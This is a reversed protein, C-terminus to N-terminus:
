QAHSVMQFDMGVNVGRVILRMRPHASTTPDALDTKTFDPFCLFTVLDLVLASSTPSDSV